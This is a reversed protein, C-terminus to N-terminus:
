SLSSIITPTRGAPFRCQVSGNVFCIAKTASLCMQSSNSVRQAPELFFNRVKRPPPYCPFGWGSHRQM